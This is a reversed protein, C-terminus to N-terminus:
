RPRGVAKLHWNEYCVLFEQEQNATPFHKVFPQTSHYVFDAGANSFYKTFRQSRQSSQWRRRSPRRWPHPSGSCSSGQQSVALWPVPGVAPPAPAFALAEWPLLSVHESRFSRRITNTNLWAKKWRNESFELCDLSLFNELAIYVIIKIALPM